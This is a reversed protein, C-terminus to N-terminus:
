VVPPALGIGLSTVYEHLWVWGDMTDLDRVTANVRLDAADVRDGFLPVACDINRRRSV